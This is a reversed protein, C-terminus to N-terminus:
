SRFTDRMKLLAIQTKADRLEGADLQRYAEQVDLWVAEVQEDEIGGGEGTRDADSIEAYFTWIRESLGGPSPYLAGLARLERPRYGVEEEVERVAAEEPGEGADIAGAVIEVLWPEGHRLTAARLQRVVLFQRRDPAYLLVGVADGREVIQRKQTKDDGEVRLEVEDVSLFGDFRRERAVERVERM